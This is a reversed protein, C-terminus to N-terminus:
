LAYYASLLIIIAFGVLLVAEGRYFHHLHIRSAGASQLLAGAAVWGSGAVTCIASFSAFSLLMVDSATNPSHFIVFAFLLNKSQNKPRRGGALMLIQNGMKTTHHRFPFGNIAVVSVSASTASIFILSRM